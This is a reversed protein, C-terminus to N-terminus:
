GEQFRPFRIEIATGGGKVNRALINGGHRVVIHKVISLGLGTGGSDRSRGKEVRYFRQFIHPLDKEPIGAGDDEVVLLVMAEEVHTKLRIRTFGKAHLVANQLLNTIVQTLRLPDAMIQDNEGEHILELEGGRGELIAKWADRRGSLFSSLSLAERELGMEASEIRSLLLLDRLLHDLRTSHDHIKELFRIQESSPLEEHDEVLTEAFGKIVTVPTRLEHSVNAVFDSRMRELGKQRTIDHLVFLTYRNEPYLYKPLPAMSIELWCTRGGVVAELETQSGEDSNSMTSLFELFDPSSIYLDLRHGVPNMEEGIIKGFAPNALQIRKEEDIMVVAERLNALTAQIQEFQKKGTDSIDAKERILENYAFVLGRVLGSNFPGGRKDVLVPRSERAAETLGRVAKRM